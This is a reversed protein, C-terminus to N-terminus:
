DITNFSNVLTVGLAIFFLGVISQWQLQQNYFLFGLIAVIFIGLGSWTAYVIALPITKIAFTMFYFSILYCVMLGFLPIINKFNNTLPILLTGCVEFIIAGLLYLYSM